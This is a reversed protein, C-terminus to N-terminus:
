PEEDVPLAFSVRPEAADARLLRVGRGAGTPLTRAPMGDGKKPTVYDFVDRRTLQTIRRNVTQVSPV